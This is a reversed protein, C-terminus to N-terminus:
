NRARYAPDKGLLNQADREYDPLFAATTERDREGKKSKRYYCNEVKSGAVWEHGVM